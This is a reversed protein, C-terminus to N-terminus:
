RRARRRAGPVRRRRQARLADMGDMADLQRLRRPADKRMWENEATEALAQFMLRSASRQGGQALTNAALSKLFWPAGPIEAARARVM